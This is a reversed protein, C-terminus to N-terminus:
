GLQTQGDAADAYHNLLDQANEISPSSEGQEWRYVTDKDVGIAAATERISEGALLRLERLEDATPIQYRSVSTCVPESREQEGTNTSM